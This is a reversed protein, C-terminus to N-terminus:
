FARLILLIIALVYGAVAPLMTVVMGFARGGAGDRYGLLFSIRGISFLVVALPIFALDPGSLLTALALTAGAMIVAQELTNQLFAAQVAIRPSPSAFASGRSDEASLYRGHSVLRVGVVVWAFVVLNAQMALALAGMADAPSTVVWPLLLRGALLVVACFCCALLGNRVVLRKEARLEADTLAPHDDSSTIPRGLGDIKASM